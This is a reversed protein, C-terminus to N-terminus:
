ERSLRQGAPAASHPHCEPSTGLDKLHQSILWLQAPWAELRRGSPVRTQPLLCRTPPVRGTRHLRIGAGTPAAARGPLQGELHLNKSCSSREPEPHGPRTDQQCQQPGAPGTRTPPVLPPPPPMMPLCKRAPPGPRPRRKPSSGQPQFRHHLETLQSAPQM